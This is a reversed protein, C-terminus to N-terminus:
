VVGALGGLFSIGKNRWSSSCDHYSNVSFSRLLMSSNDLSAVACAVYGPKERVDVRACLAIFAGVYWPIGGLFFGVIFRSSLNM